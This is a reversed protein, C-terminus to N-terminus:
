NIAAAITAIKNVGKSYLIRTKTNFCTERVAAAKDAAQVIWGTSYKPMTKSLPWMHHLIADKEKENLEFYIQSNELAAKAHAVSHSGEYKTTRWDYLFFDHCFGARTASRADIKLFRSIMYSYRAVRFCHEYRTTGAHQYFSNLEQMQENNIFELIYDFFELEKIIKKDNRTM